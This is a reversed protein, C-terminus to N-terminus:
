RGQALASERAGFGVKAPSIWEFFSWWIGSTFVKFVFVLESKDRRVRQGVPRISRSAASMLLYSRNFVSRELHGRVTM